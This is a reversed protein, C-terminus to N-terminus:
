PLHKAQRKPAIARPTPFPQRPLAPLHPKLFPPRERRGAREFDALLTAAVLAPEMGRVTTLYVFLSEAM